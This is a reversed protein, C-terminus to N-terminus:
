CFGWLLTPRFLLWFRFQGFLFLLFARFSCVPNSFLLGLILKLQRLQKQFIFLGVDGESSEFLNHGIVAAGLCRCFCFRQHLFQLFSNDYRATWCDQRTGTLFQWRDNLDCRHPALKAVQFKLSHDFHRAHTSPCFPQRDLLPKQHEPQRCCKSASHTNPLHFFISQSSHFPHRLSTSFGRRDLKGFDFISLLSM